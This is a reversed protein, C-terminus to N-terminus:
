ESIIAEEEPVKTAKAMFDRLHEVAAQMDIGQVLALEGAVLEEARQMLQADRKTLDSGQSYWAMDRLVSATVFIDGERLREDVEEQRERFDGSLETPVESLLQFLREVSSDSIAPRLGVNAAQAVPTMLTADGTLIDIIYYDKAEGIVQRREIGKIIGPGYGPHVVKDGVSYM